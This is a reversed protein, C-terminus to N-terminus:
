AGGDHIIRPPQNAFPSDGYDGATDDNGGSSGGGIGFQFGSDSGGSSSDSGGNGTAIDSQSPGVGGTTSSSDYGGTVLRFYVSGTVAPRRGLRVLHPTQTFQLLVEPFIEFPLAM